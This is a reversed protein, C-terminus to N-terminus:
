AIEKSRLTFVARIIEEAEAPGGDGAVQEVWAKAEAAKYGLRVLGDVALQQTESLSPPGEPAPQAAFGEDNLMAEEYVKGKLQAVITEATRTGIGPLRKIAATDGQEIWSAVTSVSFILAKTATMAGVKPVDIFKKFFDREIERTFGILKPTPQRESVYHFTEISVDSGIATEAFSRWVFDPLTIEYWIGGVDVEISMEDENKKRLLGDIHSIM